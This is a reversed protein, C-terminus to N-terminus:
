AFDSLRKWCFVSPVTPNSGEWQVPIVYRTRRWFGVREFLPSRTRGYYTTSWSTDQLSSNPIVIFSVFKLPLVTREHVQNEQLTRATRHVRKRVSLRTPSWLSPMQQIPAVALALCIHCIHCSTQVTNRSHRFFFHHLTICTSNPMLMLLISPSQWRKLRCDNYHMFSRIHPTWYYFATTQLELKVRGMGSYPIENKGYGGCSM